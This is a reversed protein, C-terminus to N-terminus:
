QEKIPLPLALKSSPSEKKRKRGKEEKAHPPHSPPLLSKTGRRNKKEDERSPRIITERVDRRRGENRTPPSGNLRMAIVCGIGGFRRMMRLGGRAGVNRVVGEYAEKLGFFIRSLEILKDRPIVVVDRETADPVALDGTRV